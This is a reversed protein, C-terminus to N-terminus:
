LDRLQTIDYNGACSPELPLRTLSPGPGTRRQAKLGRLVGPSSRGAAPAAQKDVLGTVGRALVVCGGQTCGASRPGGQRGGRTVYDSARLAAHSMAHILFTAPPVPSPPTRGVPPARRRPPPPRPLVNQRGPVLAGAPRPAPRRRTITTTTRAKHHNSPPAGGAPLGRCRLLHHPRPHPLIRRGAWGGHRAGRDGGRHSERGPCSSILTNGSSAHTHPPGRPVPGLSVGRGGGPAGSRSAWAPQAAWPRPAAMFPLITCWSSSTRTCTAEVVVVMVAAQLLEDLLAGGGRRARGLRPSDATSSPEPVMMLQRPVRLWGRTWRDEPRRSLSKRSWLIM